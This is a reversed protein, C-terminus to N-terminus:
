RMWWRMMMERISASATASPIISGAKLSISNSIGPKRKRANKTSGAVLSFHPPSRTTARAALRRSPAPPSAAEAPTATGAGMEAYLAKLMRATDKGGPVCLNLRMERKSFLAEAYDKCNYGCQSCDQQAMAAMMRRALPKGEALKMRDALPMAPDHWPASDDKEAPPVVDLLLKAAEANSLPTVSADLSIMGAFLGNLWTRQETTFPASEPILSPIPPRQTVSM